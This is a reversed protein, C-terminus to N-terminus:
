NSCKKITGLYKNKKIFIERVMNTSQKTFKLIRITDLNSSSTIIAANKILSM